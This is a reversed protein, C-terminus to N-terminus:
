GRAEVDRPISRLPLKRKGWDSTQGLKDAEGRAGESDVLARERWRVRGERTWEPQRMEEILRALEVV